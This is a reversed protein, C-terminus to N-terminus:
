HKPDEPSAVTACMESSIRRLPASAAVFEHELFEDPRTFFDALALALAKDVLPAGAVDLPVFGRGGFRDHARRIHVVAPLLKVLAEAGHCAAEIVHAARRQAQLISTEDESQGVVPPTKRAFQTAQRYPGILWRDLAHADPKMTLLACLADRALNAAQTIGVAGPLLLSPRSQRRRSPLAIASAM